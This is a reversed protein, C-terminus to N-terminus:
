EEYQSFMDRVLFMKSIAPDDFICFSPLIDRLPTEWTLKKQDVLQGICVATFLKTNSSIGFLTDANTRHQSFGDANTLVGVSDAYVTKGKHVVSCMISPVNFVTRARAIEQPLWTLLDSMSSMPPLNQAVSATSM